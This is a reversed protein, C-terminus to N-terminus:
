LIREEINEFKEIKLGIEYNYPYSCFIVKEKYKNEETSFYEPNKLIYYYPIKLKYNSTTTSYFINKKFNIPVIDVSLYNYDRIKLNTGQEDIKAIEKPQNGFLINKKFYDYFREDKYIVKENYVKDCVEKITKYSIPGENFNEWSKLIINDNYPKYNNLWFLKLEFKDYNNRIFTKGGRNIRGARQGVADPPAIQSYMVDSSIDLSIEIVQTAVVICPTHKVMEKIEEEKKVRDEYIFRSHYLIIKPNNVKKEKLFKKLEIYFKQTWEVQNLIVFIKKKNTYDILIEKFVKKDEFIDINNKRIIFPKYELGENDKIISYNNLEKLLFEPATGTMLLHPIKMKKLISFMRLLINLTHIEYYHIEDFIIISNQLNGLAFDAQNYGHVFSYAIHDITTVTIPKFFVKGKFNDDRVLNYSKVEDFNETNKASINSNKESNSLVIFSKGHFLGINEKEFNYENIFRYYMANCTVQTPLAFVIRDCYFKQKAKLAWLLAAETKGRGCPAFLFNYKNDSKLLEEQFNYPKCNGFIKGKIDDHKLNIDFIYKDAKKLVSEFIDEKGKNNEIFSTFNASSFDDCIQLISFFYTFISKTKYNGLKRKKSYSYIYREFISEPDMEEWKDIKINPLRFHKTFDINRYFYNIKLNIFEIIEKELYTVNKTINYYIQRHLQTHHGLIAFIPIPLNELKDFPLRDLVPLAFFPHPYESSNKGHKINDQFEKTLKGIDHLSVALFLNKKLKTESIEWRKCFNKLIYGKKEFYTKLIKLSDAIHGSLTQFFVKDEYYVRKALM